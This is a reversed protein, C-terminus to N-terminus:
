CITKFYIILISIIRYVSVYSRSVTHVTYFLATINVVVDILEAVFHGTAFQFSPTNKPPTSIHTRSNNLLAQVVDLIGAVSKNINMEKTHAAPNVQHISLSTGM